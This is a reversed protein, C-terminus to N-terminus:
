RVSERPPAPEDAPLSDVEEELEDADDDAVDLPAAPELPEPLLVDEVELEDVPEDVPEDVVLQRVPAAHVNSAAARLLM